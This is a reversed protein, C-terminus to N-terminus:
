SLLRTFHQRIGAACKPPDPNYLAGRVPPSQVTGGQCPSVTLAGRCHGGSLSASYTGGQCPSRYLAGQLQAACSSVTCHGGSLPFVACHGGSLPLNYLAGRVRSVRLSIPRGSLNYVAARLFRGPRRRPRRGVKRLGGTDDQVVKKGFNDTAYLLSKNGRLDCSLFIM